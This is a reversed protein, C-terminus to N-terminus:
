IAKNGNLITSTICGSWKRNMYNHGATGDRHNSEM